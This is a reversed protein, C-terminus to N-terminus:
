FSFPLHGLINKASEHVLNKNVSAVIMKSVHDSFSNRLFGLFEPPAIVVLKDFHKKKANQDLHHALIRAFHIAEQEKPEVDQTIAHRGKGNSDFTRGPADTVLDHDNMRSAAHDFGELEHLESHPQDQEYIKARSSEAVLIWTKNM